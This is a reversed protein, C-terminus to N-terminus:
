RTTKLITSINKIIRSEAKSLTCNFSVSFPNELDDITFHILCGDQNYCFKKNKLSHGLVRNFAEILLQTDIAYPTWDKGMDAIELDTKVLVGIM